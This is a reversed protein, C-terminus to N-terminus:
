QFLLTQTHTFEKGDTGIWILDQKIDKKLCFIGSNIGIDNKTYLGQEKKLQILGNTMFGIFINGKLSTISSVKGRKQIESKLDFIFKENKTLM